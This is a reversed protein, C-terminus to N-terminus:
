SSSGCGAQQWGSWGVMIGMSEGESVTLLYVINGQYHHKMVAISCYGVCLSFSEAKVAMHFTESVCSTM